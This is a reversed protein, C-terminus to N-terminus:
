RGAKSSSVLVLIEPNFTQPESRKLTHAIRLAHLAYAYQMGERYKEVNKIAENKLVLSLVLCVEENLCPRREANNM